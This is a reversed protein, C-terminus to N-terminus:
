RLFIISDKRTASKKRNLKIGYMQSMCRELLAKMKYEYDARAEADSQGGGYIVIDDAVCFVGNLGDLAQM